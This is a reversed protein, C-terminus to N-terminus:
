GIFYASPSLPPKIVENRTIDIFKADPKATIESYFGLVSQLHLYHMTWNKWNGDGGPLGWSFTCQCKGPHPIKNLTQDGALPPLPPFIFTWVRPAKSRARSEAALDTLHKGGFGRNNNFITDSNRSFYKTNSLTGTSWLNRQWHCSFHMKYTFQFTSM